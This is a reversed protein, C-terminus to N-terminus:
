KGVLPIFASLKSFVVAIVAAGTWVIFEAGQAKMMLDHM